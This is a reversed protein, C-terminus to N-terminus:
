AETEDRNDGQEASKKWHDKIAKILAVTLLVYIINGGPFHIQCNSEIVKRLSLVDYDYDMLPCMHKLTIKIRNAVFDSNISYVPLFGGGDGVPLLKM